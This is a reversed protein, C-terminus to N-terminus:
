GTKRRMYARAIKAEEYGVAGKFHEIVPNLQWSQLALFLKGIKDRKVPEILRDIDIDKGDMILQEIHSTITSEALSRAKAIEGISLGQKFLEYTKKFTEGKPKNSARGSPIDSFRNEQISIDPNEELYTRMEEMFEDGYRELKANGVGNIAVM